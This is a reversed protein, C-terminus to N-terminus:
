NRPGSIRFVEVPERIGKLSIAGTAEVLFDDEVATSARPSLLIQGDEAADCLRAALNVATGSATYDFRGEYGVMGVTAYGLSIGVGFGLRHGLRKWNRCLDRMRDQMALALRVADGAPDECPLPDNFLVMIGDGMRHDVGAGHANILKGMEEHYSQLVEITEEPEATECFATFGRIDCFLVGLLARHSSLMKDSGRSVVTDAVAAPLFRKLRGMREIEGVQESVRTELGENLSEVEATRDELAKFQRVNEIAIVAQQAFTQVLAIEDEKFPSVERRYLVIVGIAEDGIILPVTLVTRIGEVEIAHVRHRQGTRYVPDDRFDAVQLTRKEVIAKATLAQSPDLPLPDNNILEVFESRTGHYAPITLHTREPNALFLCAFPAGCLRAARELLVDFVPQVDDRSQSIVSLIERTAKERALRTQVERFQHVNKIAIVAQAAFTRVLEIEDESFREIRQRYLNIAGMAGQDDVLPVSIASRENQVDVMTRFSPDGNRYSAHKSLDEIHVVQGSCIAEASIHVDPDMAMVTKRIIEMGERGEPTTAGEGFHYQAMRLESQDPRGLMLASTDANCLECSKRTIAAFVPMEDDRSGSIVSLIERLAAERELRSHVDRFQRVNEIAIVAQAAFTEVLAIEDASFAKVERRFLTICGIPEGGKLLPVGVITRMGEEDVMAVRGPDGQRYLDTDTLDEVQTVQATRMVVGPILKSELPTVQGVSLHRLGDGFHAALHWHTRAANLVCLNAFPAGALRAANRLIVDFVPATDDRSASIVQLIERSAEERELRTQVERFQRVNEIAIVAQAAFTEMLAVEGDSFPAVELKYVSLVGIARGGSILPVLLTTRMGEVDAAVSLQPARDGDRLYERVDPLHQTQMTDLARVAASGKNALEHPNERLSDIFDSQASNSAVLELHTDPGNRMLLLAHPAACLRVANELISRFVPAEDARSQSIVELVERTAAERELRTQVERFQRVNEIAIVAQSAFTEVLAIQPEGFPAVTRRYLGIAGIAKGDQMLPVALFTRIGEIDAAEVRQKNGKLYAETARIDEAQVVRGERIAVGVSAPDDIPWRRAAGTLYETRAGLSAVLAIERRQNDLLYLGAFPANCLRAANQLIVDFVPAQDDRSSSIVNLIERLATEHDTSRPPTETQDSRPDDPM